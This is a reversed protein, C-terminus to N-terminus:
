GVSSAIADPIPYPGQGVTALIRNTLKKIFEADNENAWEITKIQETDFHAGELWGVRGTHIVQRGLGRGYGAEFYVGNRHGTFDAVVFPAARMSAIVEDMIWANFERDDVRTAKYGAAEIAPKFLRDFAPRISPDFWMAVFAPNYDSRERGSQLDAVRNMGEATLSVYTTGKSKELCEIFGRKRLSALIFEAEGQDTGLVIAPESHVVRISSGLSSSVSPHALNLLARDLREAVFRPFWALADAITVEVFGPPLTPYNPVGDRFVVSRGNLRQTFLFAAVKLRDVPPLSSINALSADAVYTGCKSCEWARTGTKSNDWPSHCEGVGCFYCSCTRHISM